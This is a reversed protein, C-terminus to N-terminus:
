ALPIPKMNSRRRGFSQERVEEMDKLLDDKHWAPRGFVDRVVLRAIFDKLPKPTDAPIQNRDVLDLDGNLAYLLTKGLSFIDSEPILPMRKVAEPPAFHATFGKSESKSGPDKMALGFDVLVAMHNQIIINAPKIDGHIVGCRNHMFSLAHLLREAIWCVHEVDDGRFPGYKEVYKHLTLGPIFSMVLAISGDELKLLNRMAPLAYHRIDWVSKAEEIMIEEAAPSIRSCHKICVPMGTLVHEGKYTEGIAGEAIFDLVRFEGIVVGEINNRKKDYEARAIVDNLVDHAEIIQRDRESGAEGALRPHHIKALAHFAAHIVEQSARPDVELIKYYDPLLTKSNKGM